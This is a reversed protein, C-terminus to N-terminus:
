KQLIKSVLLTNFDPTIFVREDTGLDKSEGITDLKKKTTWYSLHNPSGHNLVLVCQNEANFEIVDLVKFLESTHGGNLLIIYYHYKKFKVQM